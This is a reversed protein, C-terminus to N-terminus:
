DHTQPGLLFHWLNECDRASLEYRPMQVNVILHAPDEGTRLLTCFATLDYSSAPGGRREKVGLLWSRSFSPAVTLPVPPSAEWEHCNACRLVESPLHSRHTAIRGVLPSTGTFLARGDDVDTAGATGHLAAVAVVMMMATRRTLFDLRGTM